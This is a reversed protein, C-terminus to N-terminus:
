SEPIKNAGSVSVTPKDELPKRPLGKRTKSALNNSGKNRAPLKIGRKEAYEQAMKDYEQDSDNGKENIDTSM